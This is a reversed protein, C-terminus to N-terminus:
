IRIAGYYDESFKAWAELDKEASDSAFIDRLQIKKLKKDEIIFSIGHRAGNWTTSDVTDFFVTHANLMEIPTFGLGHVKTNYSHAEDVMEKYFDIDVAVKQSNKHAMGGIAIFNNEKCMRTWYERGREKHWVLIPLKHTELYIKRRLEEVDEIPMLEDLDLEFFDQIDFENIYFCYKSILDEINYQKNKNRMLTFAGSDLLFESNNTKVYDFYQYVLQSPKVPFDMVSDLIYPIRFSRKVAREKSHAISSLFIKTDPWKKPLPYDPKKNLNPISINTQEIIIKQEETEKMEEKQKQIIEEKPNINTSEQILQKSAPEQETTQISLSSTIIPSQMDNKNFWCYLCFPTNPSYVNHCKKCEWGEQM